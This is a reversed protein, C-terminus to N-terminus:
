PLVATGLAALREGALCRVVPVLSGSSPSRSRDGPHKIALEAGSYIAHHFYGSVPLMDWVLKCTRPARDEWLEARASIGEDDATFEIYRSM